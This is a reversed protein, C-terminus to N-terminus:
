AKAAAGAKQQAADAADLKLVRRANGGLILEKEEATFEKGLDQFVKVWEPLRLHLNPHPADTAFMIKDAGVMDTLHRLWKQFEGPPMKCYPKQWLSLDLYVNPLWAAAQMAEQWWGIDGAHALIFDADPYRAAASAFYSPRSNEWRLAVSPAGGTHCMIPIQWETAREYVWNCVPDDPMYGTGAHLKFGKVGWEHYAQECHKLGGPRRPDIAVFPIMRGQHRRAVEAYLKNQDFIHIPAEGFLLGYDVAFIISIDVGAADMEAIINDAHDDTEKRMIEDIYQRPTFSTKHAKNYMMSFSRSAGRIYAGQVTGKVVLHRHVDIIM